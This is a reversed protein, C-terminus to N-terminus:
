LISPREIHPFGSRSAKEKEFIEKEYLGKSIM